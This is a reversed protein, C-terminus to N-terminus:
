DAVQGLALLAFRTVPTHLSRSQILVDALLTASPLHLWLTTPLSRAHIEPTHVVVWRRSKHYAHSRLFAAVSQTGLQTVELSM